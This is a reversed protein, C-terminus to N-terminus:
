VKKDRSYKFNIIFTIHWKNGYIYTNNLSVKTVIVKEKNGIVKGEKLVRELLVECAEKVTEGVVYWVDPRSLRKRLEHPLRFRRGFVRWVIRVRAEKKSLDLHELRIDEVRFFKEIESQM